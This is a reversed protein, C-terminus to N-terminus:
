KLKFDNLLKGDLSYLKVNVGGKELEVILVVKELSVFELGSVDSLKEPMEHDHDFYNTNGVIFQYIANKAELFTNKDILRRSHLHEHGSFVATVNYKDIIRWLKDRQESEEDLSEDVKSKIPFAPEHYFIFVNPQFNNKLDNELWKLQKDDIIHKEINSELMIFHVGRYDFSYVLEEYGEPGNEPLNFSEIWYSLIKKNDDVLDHNGSILFTKTVLSKLDKKWNKIKEECDEEKCSALNDGITVVLDPNQKELFNVMKDYNEKTEERYHADGIIAFTFKTKNEFVVKEDDINNQKNSTNSTSKVEEIVKFNEDNKQLEKVIKNPENSIEIEEFEVTNNLIKWFLFVILIAFFVSIILITKKNFIITKLNQM